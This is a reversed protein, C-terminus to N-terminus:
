SKQIRLGLKGARQLRNCGCQQAHLGQRIARPDTAKTITIAIKRASLCHREIREPQRQGSLNKLEGLELANCARNTVGGRIGPASPHDSPLNGALSSRQL